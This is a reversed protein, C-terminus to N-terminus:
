MHITNKIIDNLTNNVQNELEEEICFCILSKTLAMTKIMEKRPEAMREDPRGVLHDVILPNIILHDFNILYQNCLNCKVLLRISHEFYHNKLKLFNVFSKAKKNRTKAIKACIPCEYCFSYIHAIKTAIILINRKIIVILLKKM